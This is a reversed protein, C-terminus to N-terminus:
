FRNVSQCLFHVSAMMDYTVPHGKVQATRRREVHELTQWASILLSQEEVFVGAFLVSSM